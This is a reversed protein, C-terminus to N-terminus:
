GAKPHLGRTGVRMHSQYGPEIDLGTPWIWNKSVKLNPELIQEIKRAGSKQSARRKVIFKDKFLIFKILCKLCIFNLDRIFPSDASISKELNGM